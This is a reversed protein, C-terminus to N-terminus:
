NKSGKGPLKDKEIEKVPMSEKNPDWDLEMDWNARVKIEEPYYNVKEAQLKLLYKGTDWKGNGNQDFIIKLKYSGPLLYNFRINAANSIKREEIVEEKTTMLQVIGMGEISDTNLIINGYEEISRTKFSIVTSDTSNGWISTFASDESVFVYRTDPVWDAILNIVRIKTSDNQLSYQVPIQLTDKKYYLHILSTDWVSLPEHFNLEFTKEKELNTNKKPITSFQLGKPKVDEEDKKKKKKEKKRFGLKLTDRHMYDENLSDKRMYAIEFSITDINYQNSDKLWLFLSDRNTHYEAIFDLTDPLLFNIPISDKVAENFALKIKAKNKRDSSKLYQKNFEEEFLWLRINDPYTKTISRRAISDNGLTDLHITDIKESLVAFPTIFTDLYAIAENPMDFLYNSNADKLAFLKYTASRMNRISFSGDKLSRAVYEPIVKLPMTDALNSYAMILIGAEALNTFANNIKGSISLSDLDPGTSFVFQFNQMVNGENNDVIANGFNLSYTTSDKLENNLEILLKKGKLKIEPKEPLPPSIILKQGVSKLVVYEDFTIEIKQEIFNVSFNPPRSEIIQPPQEDKPGGKPMGMNACSFMFAILLVLVTGTFFISQISHNNKM